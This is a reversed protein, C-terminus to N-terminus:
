RFKGANHDKFFAKINACIPCCICRLQYEPILYRNIKSLCIDASLVSPYQEPEQYKVALLSAFMVTFTSFYVNSKFEIQYLM